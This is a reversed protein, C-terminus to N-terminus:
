LKSVYKELDIIANAEAAMFNLQWYSSLATRDPLWGLVMRSSFTLVVVPTLSEIEM